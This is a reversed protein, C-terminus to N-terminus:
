RSALAIEREIVFKLKGDGSATVTWDYVDGPILDVDYNDVTDTGRRRGRCEYM